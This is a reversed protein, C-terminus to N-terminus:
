FTQIIVLGDGGDGGAGSGATVQGAGGGGGGSGLGGNGGRGGAVNGGVTTNNSAGGGAGGISILPQLLFMGDAGAGGPNGATGGTRTSILSFSTQTPVPVSTGNSVNGAGAGGGSLLLGTTPYTITGSTNGGASGTQGALAFFQGLGSMLASAQTAVVAAIGGANTGSGTTVGGGGGNAYCAVYIADTSPAISVYSPTGNSGLNATASTTASAGGAGGKGVQVYFVDPLAIAPILLRTFGGSAGGAGGSRSTIDLCWGSRGGGGGGICTFVITHIGKPKEWTVWSSTGGTNYFYDVNGNGAKPLHNLDLM